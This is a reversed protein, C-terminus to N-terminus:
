EPNTDMFQFDRQHSKSFYFFSHMHFQVQVLYFVVRNFAVLNEFLVFPIYDNLIIVATNLLSKKDQFYLRMGESWFM